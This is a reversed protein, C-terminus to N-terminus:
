KMRTQHEQVAQIFSAIDAYEWDPYGDITEMIYEGLARYAEFQSEGFMQDTTPEHPFKPNAEAYGRVSAPETARYSPKVYLLHGIPADREPYIIKAIAVYSGPAPPTKRPPINLIDFDIRINLDISIKRVANGLDEFTIDPDCGADSLVIFRCRRQVMEYLGLNEFHGGDSLYVYRRSETTLGLAEQILPLASFRPGSERYVAAGSPGPNGLWAGLRVNFFTMLVSLASSSHYGMNPSVAAGSITMATGLSLGEAYESTRRYCGSWDNLAYAGVSRPTCTLSLAKREQWALNESKLVNLACNIVLLQPPITQQMRHNPWLECLDFNDHEDFQSLPNQRRDRPNRSAGLFARVLRNCYVGHLSFRNTAITRSALVCLAASGALIAALFGILRTNLEGPELPFIGDFIPSHQRIINATTTYTFTQGILAANVAASLFGVAIFIFLPTAVALVIGASWNKWTNYRERITAATASAKSLWAVIVGAVGGTTGLSLLQKGFGSERYLDFVVYSGGFVCLTLLLWGVATRAHYGVATALWEREGDSWNSYSSLGLHIAEGIFVAGAVVIPGTCIVILIALDFWWFLRAVFYFASGMISGAVAGAFTFSVLNRIAGWATTRVTARTSIDEKSPAPSMFFAIIWAVFHIAAVMASPYILLPLFSPLPPRLADSAPLGDSKAIAFDGPSGPDYVAADYSEAPLQNLLELYQAAAVSLLMSGAFLTWKVWYHFESATSRYNEWGPRQRLSELTAMGGVSVALMLLLTALVPSAPLTWALVAYLKVAVILSLVLPIIILWNLFLNRLYLAVIALSDATFPGRDPTLYSTYRRLYKLPSGDVVRFKSLLDDCVADYGRRQVWATLFSGLYGGGSVTSLYDFRKLLGRKALGQVIGLAFAASRIGGGSLCLASIDGLRHAQAYYRELKTISDGCRHRLEKIPRDERPDALRGRASDALIRRRFRVARLEDLLVDGADAMFNERASTVGRVIKMFGDVLFELRLRMFKLRAAMM